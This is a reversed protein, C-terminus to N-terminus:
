YSTHEMYGVQCGGPTGVRGLPPPPHRPVHRRLRVDAPGVLLAPVKEGRQKATLVGTSSLRYLRFLVFPPNENCPFTSDVTRTVLRVGPLSLLGAQANMGPFWAYDYVSEREKVRLAPWLGDADPNDDESSSAQFPTLDAPIDYIRFANDEAGCTLLCV